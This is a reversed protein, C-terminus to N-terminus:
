TFHKLYFHKLQFGEKKCIQHWPCTIIHDNVMGVAQMFAYCSTPGVFSFGLRKLANAMNISEISQNPLKDNPQLNHNIVKNGVFSWLFESFLKGNNIDSDYQFKLLAKANNIIANIKLRNRIIGSQKMLFEIDNSNFLVIKHPNFQCFFKEYNAQKKLVTLWSLGAQQGELCLKAFLEHSDYIPRGWVHDHYQQYLPNASVWACRNVM